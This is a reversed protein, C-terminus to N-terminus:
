HDRISAIVTPVVTSIVQNMDVIGTVVIIPSNNLTVVSNSNMNGAIVNGNGDVAATASDDTPAEDVNLQDQKPFPEIAKPTPPAGGSGKSIDAIATPIVTSIEQGMSVVGTFVLIPSNNLTVISNSNANGLLGNFVQALLKDVPSSAAM